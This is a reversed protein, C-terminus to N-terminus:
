EYIPCFCGFAQECFVGPDNYRCNQDLSNVTQMEQETLSFDFVDLNEKLRTAKSTKPVVATGRQVGWRLVVQAATKNHRAAIDQVIESRLVSENAEAMGLEVYSGAGLPSFATFAISEERCFRLLKSQVLYPHSEVQLVSPRTKAHALLDRLPTCGFNCVGIHRALGAKQITEMAQWTDSIPVSDLEM